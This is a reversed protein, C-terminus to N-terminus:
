KLTPLVTAEFFVSFAFFRSAKPASRRASNSISILVALAAAFRRRQRSNAPACLGISTAFSSRLRSIAM